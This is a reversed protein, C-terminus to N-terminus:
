LYQSLVGTMAYYMDVSIDMPRVGEQTVLIRDLEVPHVYTVGMVYTDYISM